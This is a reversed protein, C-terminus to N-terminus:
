KLLNLGSRSWQKVAFKKL